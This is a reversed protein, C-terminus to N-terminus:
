RNQNVLMRDCVIREIAAITNGLVKIEATANLEEEKAWVDIISTARETSLERARVLRRFALTHLDSKVAKSELHADKTEKVKTHSIDIKKLKEAIEKVVKPLRKKTAVTIASTLDAKKEFAALAKTRKSNFSKELQIGVCEMYVYGEV